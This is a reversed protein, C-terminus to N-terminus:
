VSTCVVAGRLSVLRRAPRQHCRAAADRAAWLWTTRGSAKHTHTHTNTHTHTHKHTHAHTCTNFLASFFASDRAAAVISHAWIGTSHTRAHTFTNFFPLFIPQPVPQSGNCLPQLHFLLSYILFASKARQSKFLVLQRVTPISAPFDSQGGRDPPPTSIFVKQPFSVDKYWSEQM